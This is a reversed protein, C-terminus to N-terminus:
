GSLPVSRMCSRPCALLRSICTSCGCAAQQLLLGWCSDRLCASRQDHAASRGAGHAHTKSGRLQTGVQKTAAERAEKEEQLAQKLNDKEAVAGKLTSAAELM